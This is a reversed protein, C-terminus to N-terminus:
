HLPREDELEVLAEDITLPLPGNRGSREMWKEMLRPVSPRELRAEELIDPREVLGRFSGDYLVTRKLVIVRDTLEFAVSLDHTAIVMTKGELDSLINVLDRRGQPDLNATPEDMLLIPTHMALIGAIAVRKKEGFSLHHPAREEFGAIGAQGIADMVRKEVEDPPLKMNLPGFAVDDYVRPMFIQDDPDQFLFGVKLRAKEVTRKTVEEGDIEVRGAAPLYLSSMIHLLTSKGAGNPGVLAIREGPSITIEIDRLAQMGDDYTYDVGSLHIANLADVGDRIIVAIAGICLFMASFAADRPRVKMRDITRLEGTYGRALLANYIGAARANSRVFVMGATFSLTRFVDKSLLNGRGTFGRALRALKMRDSEELLVFIFRYTFLIMSSLLKPMRFWRLTILLDFMPTTSIVALLALVSAVIRMALVAANYPTSTFLMAVTSFIIFPIALALSKWLHNLPVRSALVVAANFILVALVAEFSRLFATVVILAVACALKVRPDFQYLRSSHSYQDIEYHKV